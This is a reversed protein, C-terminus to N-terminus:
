SLSILELIVFPVQPYNTETTKQQLTIEIILTHLSTTKQKLMIGASFLNM